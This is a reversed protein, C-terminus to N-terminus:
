YSGSAGGGGFDGGGGRFGHGRPSPSAGPALAASLGLEVVRGGHETGFLPEGTVGYRERGPGNRLYRHLLLIGGIALGGSVVLIVWLPAVHVYFRLTVLSAVGLVVGMRLLLPRRLRIGAALVFLPVLATAAGFLPRGWRASTEPVGAYFGPYWTGREILRADYSALNVAVYLGLISVVLAAQAARRQSPSLAPAISLGVLPPSLAAGLLIWGVRSDVPAFLCIGAFAGFVSMGWRWAGVTAVLATLLLLVRWPFPGGMEDLAQGLAASTFGLALIATAEEAGADRRKLPGTQVETLVICGLAAVFLLLGTPVDQIALLAAAAAVAVLTFLFLLVRFAPRVRSRDDPYEAAIAHLAERDIVGAHHWSQAAARVENRRDAEGVDKRM